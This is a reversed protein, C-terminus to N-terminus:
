NSLYSNILEAFSAYEEDLGYRVADMLSQIMEWITSDYPETYDLYHENELYKKLINQYNSYTTLTVNAAPYFLSNLKALESQFLNSVLDDIFQTLVSTELHSSENINIWRQFVYPKFKINNIAPFNIPVFTDLAKDEEYLDYQFKTIFRNPENLYDNTTSLVGDYEQALEAFYNLLEIGEESTWTTVYNNNEDIKISDDGLASNMYNAFFQPSSLPSVILKQNQEAIDLIEQISYDIKNSGFYTSNVTYYTTYYSFVVSNEKEKFSSFYVDASQINNVREIDYTNPYITNLANIFDDQFTESAVDFKMKITTKQQESNSNCASLLLPLLFLFVYKQKM